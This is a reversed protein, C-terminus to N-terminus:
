ETNITFCGIKKHKNITKSNKFIYNLDVKFWSLIDHNNKLVERFQELNIEKDIGGFLNIFSEETIENILENDILKNLSNDIQIIDNIMLKTNKFTILKTEKEMFIKFALSSQEEFTGNIFVSIFKIFERYNLYGDSNVDISNFINRNLLNDKKNIIMCFEDYDIVGDDTQVASFKRFYEHLKLLIDNSFLTMNHFENLESKRLTIINSENSQSFGM